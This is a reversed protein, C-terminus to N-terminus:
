VGLLNSAFVFNGIIARNYSLDKLGVGRNAIETKKALKRKMISVRVLARNEVATSERVLLRGKRQENSDRQAAATWPRAPNSARISTCARSWFGADPRSLQLFSGTTQLKANGPLLVNWMQVCPTNYKSTCYMCTNAFYSDPSRAGHTMARM